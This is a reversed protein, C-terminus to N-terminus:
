GPWRDDDLPMHECLTDEAFQGNSITRCRHQGNAFIDWDLYPGGHIYIFLIHFM